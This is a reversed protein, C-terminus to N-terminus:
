HLTKMLVLLSSNRTQGTGVVHGQQNCQACLSSQSSRTERAQGYKEQKMWSPFPRISLFTAFARVEIGIMLGTGRVDGLFPFREQLARLREMLYSGTDAARAQMGGPSSIKGHWGGALLEYYKCRRHLIKARRYARLRWWLCSPWGLRALRPAAAAPPLTSWATPSLWPTSAGRWRCLWTGGHCLLWNSGAKFLSAIPMCLQVLASVEFRPEGQSTLIIDGCTAFRVVAGMPFGNGISKGLTVIDPVVGQADFAWFHSGARGFGCQVEDAVCLAGHARMGAHVDALYGEPPM